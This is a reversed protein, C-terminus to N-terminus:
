IVRVKRNALSPIAITRARDLWADPARTSIQTQVRWLAFLRRNEQWAQLMIRAREFARVASRAIALMGATCLLAIIVDSTM